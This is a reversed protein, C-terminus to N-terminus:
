LRYERMDGLFWADCGTRADMQSTYHALAHHKRAIMKATCSVQKNSQSKGKTRTYTLYPTLPYLGSFEAEVALAVANHQDHGDQEFAPYYVEEYAVLINITSRLKERVAHLPNPDDDRLGMFVLRHDPLGLEKMAAVSEARRTAANCFPLGRSPQLYSDFVILVLPWESMITFANWLCEDDNHPAILLKSVRKKGKSMSGVAM